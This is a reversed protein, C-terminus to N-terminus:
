PTAPPDKSEDFIVSLVLETPVLSWRSRVEALADRTCGRHEFLTDDLDFLVATTTATM